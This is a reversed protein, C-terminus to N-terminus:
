EGPVSVTVWAEVVTLTAEEALGDIRLAGTVKVAVTLGCNVPVGVPVTVKMSVVVLLLRPVPVDIPEPLHVSVVEESGTLGCFM